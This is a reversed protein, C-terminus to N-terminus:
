AALGSVGVDEAGGPSGGAFRAERERNGLSNVSKRWNLPEKTGTEAGWSPAVAM